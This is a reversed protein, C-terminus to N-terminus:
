FVGKIAFHIEGCCLQGHDFDIDLVGTIQMAVRGV